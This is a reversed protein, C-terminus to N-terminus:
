EARMALVPDIRAARFAPVLCAAVAVLALVGVVAVYTIPDTPATEFLLAGMLRALALAGVLGTVIGIATMSLGERVVLKVVRSPTAGLAVRIGIERSRQGVLYAIVGYIGIASLLLAILSFGTLLTMYFRPQAVSEAVITDLTKIKSVALDRDLEHIATTAERAVVLGDRSARMVVNFSAVPWQDYVGYFQARVASALSSQKFDGVIGVIDGEFNNDNHGWGMKIHKGIPDENPFFEKVAQQTILFVKTSGARDNANFGRGKVIPVGLTSLYDPTAVRAEASPENAPNDYTRGQVEFSFNFGFPTLPMGIAAGVQEVGGITRLRDMMSSVFVRQLEPSTYKASPLSIAFSVGHDTRFGPDVSTLKDFSKVLLGAGALLMVSLALESIVLIQRARQSNKRGGSGRTGERLTRAIDPRVAQRAPLLGFAIGTLVCLGATFTLVVSDLRVSDLRPLSPPAIGVLAKVGVAALVIGLVGGIVSLVASETALQRILRGRGAGLATRVALESERAVGRVLLLNAVNACAILLVFGVGGLLVLLPRKLEGTVWEQLPVVTSGLDKNMDPYQQVLRQMVTKLDTRAAELPVNPKLRAIGSLYVAGRSQALRAPDFTFPFWVLNKSPYVSADPAIGVVRFQENDLTVTKGILSTDSGFRTRWLSEVLIVANTGPFTAEDATFVLRGRVPEVGLVTFFDASVDSGQLREPDAAGTLVASHGAITAISTFSRAQTRADEINAPSWVTPRGRNVPAVMVLQEPNRFPLPRLLIGRVVSFIATNAGIGLALTLVAIISFGPARRLARWAFSVDQRFEQVFEKKMTRSERREDTTRCFELADNIDGFQREAEARATDREWGRAVLENVRMDLHFAFEEDVEFRATRRLSLRFPM